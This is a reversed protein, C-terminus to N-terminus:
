SYRTCKTCSGCTCSYSCVCVCQEGESAVGIKTVFSVIQEREESQGEGTGDAGQTPIVADSPNTM